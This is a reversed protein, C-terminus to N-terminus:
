IYVVGFYSRIKDYSLSSKETLKMYQVSENAHLKVVCKWTAYNYFTNKVWHWIKRGWIEIDCVDPFLSANFLPLVYFYSLSM